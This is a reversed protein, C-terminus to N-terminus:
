NPPGGMGSPPGDMGGAGTGGSRNTGSSSGSSSGSDTAASPLAKDLNALVVKQGRDIGSKIQTWEIGVAGITVSVKDTGSGDVVTVASTDGDTTVASTPVALAATAGDTIITVTGTSGNGLSTAPDNLGITVRYSTTSSSSDPTQAIAVVKGDIVQDSGDPSVKANQGVRVQTIQDVSITTVVEYGATGQIIVHQTSSGSTATDGVAIGISVVTGAIPSVITAQALTQEAVTVQLEAADVAKQAAILDESSATTSASNGSGTAATSGSAGNSSSESRTGGATSSGATGSGATNSSEDTASSQSALLQDLTSTATSLQAQATAVQQQAAQVDTVATICAQLDSGPTTSTTTSTTTGASSTGIGNCVTTAADLATQAARLAQDVAAQADVVAQRAAVLEPSNSASSSTTSTSASAAGVAASAGTSTAQANTRVGEAAALIATTAAASTAASAVKSASGGSGSSGATSAVAEGNLAKSMNLEATALTAQREHLTRTLDETDLTAIQQGVTVTDGLKVDVTAVTGSTPFAVAAQSVPEITAVGSLQQTVDQISATATRYNGSSNGSAAGAWVASAVLATAAVGVVMAARIRRRHRRKTMATTTSEGFLADIHRAIEADHSPGGAGDHEAADHAHDDLICRDHSQDLTRGTLPDTATM